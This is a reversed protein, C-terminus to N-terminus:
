SNPCCSVASFLRVLIFYSGPELVRNQYTDQGITTNSGSGIVVTAILGDVEGTIGSYTVYARCVCVCVYKCMDCM